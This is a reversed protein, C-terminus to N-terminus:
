STVDGYLIPYKELMKLNRCLIDENKIFYFMTKKNNLIM